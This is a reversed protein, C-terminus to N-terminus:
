TNQPRERQPVYFIENAAM